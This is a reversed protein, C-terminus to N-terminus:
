KGYQKEMVKWFDKAANICKERFMNDSKFMELSGIKNSDGIIKTGCMLAEGVSRCFPENCVPNYYLSSITNYFIPMEGHDIKGLFEVNNLSKIAKEWQESGWGAVLFRKNKNVRAFEIFNATGKLEHFFGIYGISDSRDLKMDYFASDIPDPIIVVNRFIDGYLDKFFSFHFETLFFSKICSQWFIKRFDNSWYLNSDHELRIHNNLTPISEVLKPYVRSIIELNSSIVFDYSDLLVSFNSDYHFSRVVHGRSQGEKIIIQNSRQAGGPNHEIGFDSILLVKM